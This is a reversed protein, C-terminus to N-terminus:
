DFDNKRLWLELTLLTWLQHGRDARGAVHEEFLQRVAEVRLRRGLRPSAYLEGDLIEAVLHDPVKVLDEYTARRKLARSAAM